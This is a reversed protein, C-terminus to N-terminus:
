VSYITPLTLHTYSVAEDGGCTMAYSNGTVPSYASVSLDTRGERQSVEQFAKFVEAAFQQSTVDTDPAFNSYDRVPPKETTTVTEPGPSASTAPSDTSPAYTPEEIEGKSSGFFGSGFFYILLGVLAALLLVLTAVLWASTGGKEEEYYAPGFFADDGSPYSPSQDWSSEGYPHTM